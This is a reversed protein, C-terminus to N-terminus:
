SSPMASPAADPHAPRYRGAYVIKAAKLQREIWATWVKVQRQTTLTQVLTSRAQTFSVPKSPTIQTVVGVNWGSSTEVPGFVAGKAAAFAAKGYADELQSAQVAGLNGGKASTSTDISDAKALAAFDAGAAVKAAIQAADSKSAVVINEITRTEPTVMAARHADYYAQAQADTATAVKATVSTYLQSTEMVRTVEDLVDAETVGTTALFQEFKQEDGLMKSDIVQQLQQRAQTRSIAIHQRKAATSMVMGVAMSKAADRRFTALKAPDTPAKISYLASLVSIRRDLQAVTVVKGDVRM